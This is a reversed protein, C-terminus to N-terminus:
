YDEVKIEKGNKYYIVIFISGDPNYKTWRGTKLGMSYKGEKKTLGNPWYWKHYGVPLDDLFEGEFHIQNNPYYYVWKGKRNDDLYNGKESHDGYDLTWQGNKKGEVYDGESIIEGNPYYEVSHGDQLGNYYFEERHLQGDEYYWVWQKDERGYDTYSGKQELQGNPHYYKWLKVKKGNKYTGESKIKGDLYYHKWYGTKFGEPNLKGEAIKHGKSFIMAKEVKGEQDFEKRWGEAKGNKFGAEIKVKGDPYYEKKIDLTVLEEPNEILVDNEYKETLTLNGNKDFTKFYGNRKGNKYKGEFKRVLPIEYNTEEQPYFWRWLGHKKNKNDLYNIRDISRTFGKEYSIVQIIRGDLDSFIYGIGDELGEKFPITKKLNGSKYYYKTLGNKVDDVFLEEIKGDKTFQTRLGNKKGEKYNIILSIQSSDNYFVWTSDLLFNKRKGESKLLGNEYYTKWYGDPKGDRIWGESSKQGNEYNFVTFEGKNQAMISLSFFLLLISISSSIIKLKKKNLLNILINKM